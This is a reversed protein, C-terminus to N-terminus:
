GIATHAPVLRGHAPAAAPFRANRIRLERMERMVQAASAAARNFVVQERIVCTWLLAVVIAISM